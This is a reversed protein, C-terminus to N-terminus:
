RHDSTALRVTVQLDARDPDYSMRESTWRGTAQDTSAAGHSVNAAAALGTRGNLDPRRRNSVRHAMGSRNAPDIDSGDVSKVEHAAIQKVKYPTLIDRKQYPPLKAVADHLIKDAAEELKANTGYRIRAM